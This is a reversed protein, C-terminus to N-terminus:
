SLKVTVDFLLYGALQGVVGDQQEGILAGTGDALGAGGGNMPVGVGPMRVTVLRASGPVYRLLVKRAAFFDCSDWVERANDATLYGTLGPNYLPEAPLEVHARANQLKAAANGRAGEAPSAMSDFNAAVANNYFLYVQYTHGDLAVVQEGFKADSQKDRCQVFNREDGQVPDDTISNFVPYTAPSSMLFTTRDPGWGGGNDIREGAPASVAPAPGPTVAAAATAGAAPGAAGKRQAATHLVYAGGGLLAAALAVAIWRARYRRPPSQPAAQVVTASAAQVVPGHFTGGEIRNSNEM